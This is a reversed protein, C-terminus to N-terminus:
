KKKPFIQFERATEGFRNKTTTAVGETVKLVVDVAHAIEKGGSYTRGDKNSHSIFIFNCHPYRSILDQAQDQTLKMQSISDIVIFRYMKGGAFHHIASLPNHSIAEADMGRFASRVNMLNAKHAIKAKTEETSLYLCRGHRQLEQLLLLIFSSKGQGPLGWILMSFSEELSGFFERWVRSLPLYEVRLRRLANMSQPRSQTTSLYDSMGNNNDKAALRLMELPSRKGYFGFGDQSLEEEAMKAFKEVFRKFGLQGSDLADWVIRVDDKVMERGIATQTLFQTKNQDAARREAELRIAEEIRPTLHYEKDFSEAKVLVPLARIIANTYNQAADILEKKTLIAGLLVREFNLRGLPSPMATRPDLFQAINQSNIISRRRFLEVLQKVANKSQMLEAFTGLGSSEFIGAIKALDDAQLQRALSITKTTFDVEQTLSENLINSYLACESAPADIVRVLVPFRFKDVDEAKLGFIPAAQKLYAVYLAREQISARAAFLKLGMTRGNGGLVTGDATVMAAGNAATPDNTIIIHPKLNKAIQEVKNRESPDNTYDRQQCNDPYRPEKSFSEPKHSTILTDLEYLAYFAPIVQSRTNIETQNCFFAGPACPHVPQTKPPIELATTPADTKPADTTKKRSKKQAPQLPPEKIPASQPLNEVSLPEAESVPIQFANKDGERKVWLTKGARGIRVLEVPTQKTKQRRLLMTGPVLPLDGLREKKRQEAKQREEKRRQENARMVTLTQNTIMGSM